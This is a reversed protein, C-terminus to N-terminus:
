PLASSPGMAAGVGQPTMLRFVSISCLHQWICVLCSGEL